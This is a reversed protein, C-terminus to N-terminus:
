PLSPGSRVEIEAALEALGEPSQAPGDAFRRLVVRWWAWVAADAAARHTTKPALRELQLVTTDPIRLMRAYALIALDSSLRAMGFSPEASAARYLISLWRADHAAPGTDFAIEADQWERNLIKCADAPEFGKTLLQEQSIGHLKEAEENWGTKWGLWEQTPRILISRAEVHTKEAWAWGIEIPYSLFQLGSAEIDAFVLGQPKMRSNIAQEIRDAWQRDAM